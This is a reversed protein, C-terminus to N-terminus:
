MLAAIFVEPCIPPTKLGIANASKVRVLAEQAAGSWRVAARYM